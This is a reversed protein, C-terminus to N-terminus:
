ESYDNREDVNESLYEVFEYQNGDADAFYDRIRYRQVQKPYDRKFGNEEMRKALAEVDNVVFGVHNIGPTSYKDIESTKLPRETMAIYTDDNGFHLWKVGDVAGGGRVDFDPFATKFFQIANDLNSVNMNFHEMYNISNKM